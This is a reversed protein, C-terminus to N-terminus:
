LEPHGTDRGWGRTPICCTGSTMHASALTATGVFCGALVLPAQPGAVVATGLGTGRPLVHGGQSWGEAM